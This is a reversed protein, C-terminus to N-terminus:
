YLYLDSHNWSDSMVPDDLTRERRLRAGSVKTEDGAQDFFKIAKDLLRIRNEVNRDRRDIKEFVYAKELMGVAEM